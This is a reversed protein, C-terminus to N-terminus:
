STLCARPAATTTGTSFLSFIKLLNREVYKERKTLVQKYIMVNSPTDLAKEM